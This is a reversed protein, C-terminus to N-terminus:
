LKKLGESIKKEMNKLRSRSQLKGSGLNISTDSLNTSDFTSEDISLDSQSFTQNTGWDTGSSQISMTGKLKENRTVNKNMDLQLSGETIDMNSYNTNLKKPNPLMIQLGAKEEYDFDRKSDHKQKINRTVKSDSSEQLFTTRSSSNTRDRIMSAIQTSSEGLNFDLDDLSAIQEDNLTGKQNKRKVGLIEFVGKIQTTEVLLM